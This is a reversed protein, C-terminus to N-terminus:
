LLENLKAETVPAPMGWIDCIKQYTGDDIMAQMAKQVADTLATDDKLVAIGVMGPDYGNPNAPDVILEFANGDDTNKATYGLNFNGFLVAQVKGSKLAMYCDTAAPFMLSKIEPSGAAALQKNTEKVLDDQVTGKEIAVTKGSLDELTTIGEPNGKVVLIGTSDYAYSIFNVMAIREPTVSMAAIIVDQKDAQLSPIISDWPVDVYDMSVGMKAALAQAIDFDFGTAKDSGVATWMDWPPFPIDTAVRLGSTKVKEPVIAAVAPDTTVQLGAQTLITAATASASPGTSTETAAEGGCAALAVAAALLVVVLLVLVRTRSPITMPNM